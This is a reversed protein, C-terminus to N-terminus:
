FCSPLPSPPPPTTLIDKNREMQEENKRKKTEKDGRVEKKIQIIDVVFSSVHIISLM